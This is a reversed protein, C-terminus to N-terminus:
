RNMVFEDFNMLTSIVMTLAAADPAPLEGAWVQAGTGLLKTAAAPDSAYGRRLHELLQSLIQLEGALPPRSTLTVFVLEVAKNFDGSSGTWASSALVRAAEVFQPDNMLVFAQLPTSTPERRAMCVSRTAADFVTMSPPPAARRWFTYLSRRYLKEGTDQKYIKGTGAEEWLGAPQYPKVSPGGITNNLLGSVFLAQDRLQEATLRQKPGRALLENDPDRALLEPTALSSQRYTASTVILKHLAKVNWDHDMFWGALWDLLEPHTPLSGQSGFDEVTTVLGRGFHHKWLRNVAVRATLPHRRDTLWQALGLRNRPWAPDFPLIGAPVDPQVEEGRLDYAGRKLVHTARRRPMEEMVMIEPLANVLDNEQRRLQHLETRLATTLEDRKATWQSLDRDFVLLDDVLGRKIGSDGDRAGLALHVNTIQLDGWETRHLIERTLRDRVVQAEARQDNIFLGLGAARSSGDYTLTVRTWVGLPLPHVGRIAIANGPWFHILGFFPRGAELVFDFGRRASDTAARSHHLVVAHEQEEVRKLWFSITFEDARGFRGVSKVLVQNDGSFQVARGRHGAVLRPADVFEAANTSMRNPSRDDTLEDFAFAALPAVPTDGTGVTGVPAQAIWDPLRSARPSGLREELEVIQRRLELHELEKAADPYLLMTPTPMAKTYAAYLGPEDINNFFASLSYYDRQSVPDYKHDHCRACELTLGLMATGFTHVRDSVYEIRFEESISGSEGTILHLRNFATALRQDRMSDPLLDGALQWTLFQDYPLNENLARILWDRWPSLDRDSDIQYGYTDAFRALDLWDAAMQEGYHPSALLRDVLRGVAEPSPDAVFARVEDPSPPLGTLGFSLRRILANRDAPPASGIKEAALRAGIFRDIPNPAADGTIQPPPSTTPVPLFTWHKEHQAGQRIWAVILEKEAESLALRSDPPPMQEDTDTALIRRALESQGHGDLTLVQRLGEGTDLRPRNRRAQEDPGHCQFCRDSLLPRIQRTFSIEAVGTHQATGVVPRTLLLLAVLTVLGANPVSGTGPV